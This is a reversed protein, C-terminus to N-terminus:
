KWIRKIAFIGILSGFLILGWTPLTPISTTFTMDLTTGGGINYDALTRDNLLTTSSKKLIIIDPPFGEKDQIKQKVEEIYDSPEVELTITKGSEVNKVYIQHASLNNFAFLILLILVISTRHKLVRQRLFIYSVMQNVNLDKVM